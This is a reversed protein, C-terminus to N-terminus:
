SSTASSGTRPPSRRRTARRPCRARRPRDDLRRGPPLHPDAEDDPRHGRRGARRVAQGRRGARAPGRRRRPRRADEARGRAAPHRAARPQGHEDRRGRAAEGSLPDEETRQPGEGPIWGLASHVTSADLGTSESIRRAARGTPAVLLVSSPAASCIMRITATKGTGPGGTVISLRHAFANAVAAAQEAAPVLDSQLPQAELTPELALLEAIRHALEIELAATAPRYVFGDDVVVRDLTPRAGGTLSATRQLAEELPLCTSGDSRPRRSCTCWRRRPARRTTPRRHRRRARDHGGDRLRRRLGVDARVPPRARRPAREPGYQKDIRAVLWALGHPALLLHLARTSRLTDWAKAAEGAQRANLGVSKFAARPDADVAELVAEGHAQFLRAARTPGIGKVRELYTILGKPGAPGIPQRSQAKVQMGFRKDDQWTGRVAVREGAELHGILGVVVIEDGDRDAEIM